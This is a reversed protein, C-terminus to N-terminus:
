IWCENKVFVEEKGLAISVRADDRNMYLLHESTKALFAGQLKNVVENFTDQDHCYLERIADECNEKTAMVDNPSKKIWNIMEKISKLDLPAFWYHLDADYAFQRKLFSVERVSRFESIFDEKTESTYTMDLYHTFAAALSDPNFWTRVRPHVAIINDDGYCLLKANESFKRDLKGREQLCLMYFCYRVALSVYISNTPATAPNGSPQGHSMQYVFHHVIHMSRSLCEWLVRRVQQNQLSDGYFSNIIEVIEDFLGPQVSGDFNSFDGAILSHSGFSNLRNALIGWDESHVNIGVCSEVYMKNRTMFALFGGFYKRFLISFPLPAASFVRTKKQMVKELPRKEDKLTDVFYVEPVINNRCQEEMKHVMARLQKSKVSVFDWEGDGLWDTKGKKAECMLPWGASKSRKLPPFYQNGPIGACSEEYTLVRREDDMSPQAFLIQKYDMVATLVIDRRLVKPAQAYKQLGRIMPGDPQLHPALYAPGVTTPGLCEFVSSPRLSTKCPQTVPNKIVGISRFSGNRLPFDTMDGEAEILIPEASCMEKKVGAEIDRLTIISSLAYGVQGGFHFGIIKHQFSDHAVLLPSGCDGKESSLACRISQPYEHYENPNFNDQLSVVTCEVYTGDRVVQSYQDGNRQYTILTVRMGKSLKSIEEPTVLHNTIDPALGCTKPLDGIFFETKVEGRKVPELSHVFDLVDMKHGSTQEHQMFMLEMDDYVRALYGISKVYHANIIIRRGKLACVTGINKEGDHTIAVLRWMNRRIKKGLQACQESAPGEPSATFVRRVEESKFGEYRSRHQTKDVRMGSEPKSKNEYKSVKTTRTTRMGSEQFAKVTEPTLVAPPFAEAATEIEKCKACDPVHEKHILYHSSHDRFADVSNLAVYAAGFVNPALTAAVTSSILFQMAFAVYANRKSKGQTYYAYLKMVGKFALHAGVFIATIKTITGMLTGERVWARIKDRVDFALVVQSRLAESTRALLDQLSSTTPPTDAVLPANMSEYVGEQPVNARVHDLLDYYTPFVRLDNTELPVIRHGLNVWAFRVEQHQVAWLAYPIILNEEQPSAVEESSAAWREDTTFCGVPLTRKANLNGIAKRDEFNKVSKQYSKSIKIILEDYSMQENEVQFTWHSTDDVGLGHQDRYALLKEIDLQGKANRVEPIIGVECEIHLRRELADPSILSAVTVRKMNTTLVVFDASFPNNAKEHLAASHLQYPFVNISRIIEFFELNPTQASDVAQGFDDYVVIPQGAYGDWFDQEVCRSYIQGSLDKDPDYKGCIKLLDQQLPTVLFTKGVGPNGYLRICVPERRMTHANPNKEAVKRFLSLIPADLRRLNKSIEPNNAYIKSLRLHSAYMEEIQKAIDVDRGIKLQNSLTMMSAVETCLKEVEPICSYGTYSEGLVHHCFLKLSKDIFSTLYEAGFNLASMARHTHSLRQLFRTIDKADTSFTIGITSAVIMLCLGIGSSLFESIDSRLDYEAQFEFKHPATSCTASVSLVTASIAAIKPNDSFATVVGMLAIFCRMYGPIQTRPLVFAFTLCALGVLGCVMSKWGFSQFQACVTDVISYICHSIFDTFVSLISHFQTSIFLKCSDIISMVFQTITERTRVGVNRVPSIFDRDITGYISSVSSLVLHSLRQFINTESVLRRFRTTFSVAPVLANDRLTSQVPM